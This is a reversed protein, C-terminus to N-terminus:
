VVSSLAVKLFDLYRSVRFELSKELLAVLLPPYLKPVLRWGGVECHNVM